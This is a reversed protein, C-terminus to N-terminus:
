SSSYLFDHVVVLKVVLLKVVLLKVSCLSSALLLVLKVVKMIDCAECLLASCEVLYNQV